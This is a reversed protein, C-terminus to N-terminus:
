EQVEMLKTVVQQEEETLQEFLFALVDFAKAIELSEPLSTEDAMGEVSVANTVVFASSRQRYKAIAQIADAALAVGAVRHGQFVGGDADNWEEIQLAQRQLDGIQLPDKM